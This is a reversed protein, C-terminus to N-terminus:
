ARIVGESCYCELYRSEEAVNLVGNIELERGKFLFRQSANVGSRYRITVVETAQPWISQSGTLEKADRPRVEAYCTAITQWDNAVSAEQASGTANRSQLQVQHKLNKTRIAAM